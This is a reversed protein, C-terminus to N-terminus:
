AVTQTKFLSGLSHSQDLAAVRLQPIGSSQRLSPNAWTISQSQKSLAQCLYGRCGPCLGCCRVEGSRVTTKWSAPYLPAIIFVSERAATPIIREPEPNGPPFQETRPMALGKGHASGRCPEAHHAARGDEGHPVRVPM